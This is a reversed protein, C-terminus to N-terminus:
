SLTNKEFFGVLLLMSTKRGGEACEFTALRPKDGGQERRRKAERLGEGIVGKNRRGDKKKNGAEREMSGEADVFFM